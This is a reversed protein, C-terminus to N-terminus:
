ASRACATRSRVGTVKVKGAAALEKADKSPIDLSFAADGREILARRTAPAPVERVIVRELTPLPGSKWGDFRTYVTQQGPDWRELMFAGAGAPTRHLYETACPDDTPAHEKAVKSNIVIPVPV